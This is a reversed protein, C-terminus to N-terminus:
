VAFRLTDGHSQPYPPRVIMFCPLLELELQELNSTLTLTLTRKSHNGSWVRTPPENRSGSAM